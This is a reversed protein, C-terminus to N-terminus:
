ILNPERSKRAVVVPSGRRMWESLMGPPESVDPTGPTALTPGLDEHDVVIIMMQDGHRVINSDDVV